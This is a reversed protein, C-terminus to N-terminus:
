ARPGVGSPLSRSSPQPSQATAPPPRSSGRGTRSPPPRSVLHTLISSITGGVPGSAGAKPEDAHRVALDQASCGNPRGQGVCEGGFGNGQGTAGVDLSGYLALHRATECKARVCAGRAAAGGRALERPQVQPSGQVVPRVPAFGFPGARHPRLALGGQDGAATTADRTATRRKTWPAATRHM